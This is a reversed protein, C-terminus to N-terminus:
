SSGRLQRLFGILVPRPIKALRRPPLDDMTLRQIVDGARGMDTRIDKAYEEAEALSGEAMSLAYEIVLTEMDLQLRPDGEPVPLPAKPMEPPVETKDGRIQQTLQRTEELLRKKEDEESTDLPALKLPELEESPTPIYVSNKCHPCKGRKGANENSTKVLKGCHDCHFEIAM